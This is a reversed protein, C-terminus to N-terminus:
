AKYATYIREEIAAVIRGTEGPVAPARGAVVADVFEEILPAHINPAPPLAEVREIGGQRVRLMGDNLPAVHISGGTFFMDLTDQPEDSAHTVALTAYGGREFALVAIATDEVDREFVVNGVMSTVDRV